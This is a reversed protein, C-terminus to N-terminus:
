PEVTPVLDFHADVVARVAPDCLARREEGWRYSWAYRRRDPDQDAGPHVNLEVSGHGGAALDRLSTLLSPADWRGAEDLGRFRETRGLGARVVRADLREALRGLVVARGRRATPRPVRVRGISNALALDAVVEAVGPWLHTHQHADLHDIRRHAAVAALQASFERRIDDPDIRRSALRLALHRWDAALRGRRDVLTPVEAASLLPPDEGVLALHVGVGLEPADALMGLSAEADAGLVLVSTATVIGDRHAALIAASTAATLGFDDATVILPIPSM